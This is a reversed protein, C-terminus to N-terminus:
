SRAAQRVTSIGSSARLSNKRAAEVQASREKLRNMLAVSLEDAIDQREDLVMLLAEASFPLPEDGGELLLHKETVGDWGLMAGQLLARSAQENKVRGTERRHEEVAVRWAHESPLRMRFTAGGSKVEFERAKALKDKFESLDM